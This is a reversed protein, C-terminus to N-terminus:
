TAGARALADLLRRVAAAPDDAGMVAGMVAVGAAGAAACEGAREATVGGLAFVPLSHGALADPGLPPGYGPKSPSPYVPSLTAYDCGARAAAAVEDRTHCSRGVLPPRPGPWWPDSAALHVGAGGLLPGSAVILVPVVTLLRDALAARRHPPLDKERLVVARAGGDVAAAVTDVLDAGRCSRRDTLVLLAPLPSSAAAAM